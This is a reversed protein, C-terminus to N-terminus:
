PNEGYPKLERRKQIKAAGVEGNRQWRKYHALCLGHKKVLVPRDCARVACKM